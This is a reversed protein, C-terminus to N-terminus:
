DDKAGAKLMVIQLNEEFEGYDNIEMATYTRSRYRIVDGEVIPEYSYLKRDEISYRANAYKVEVGLPVVAGDLEVWKINGEVWKGGNDYDYFGEGVVKLEPPIKSYKKILKKFNYM